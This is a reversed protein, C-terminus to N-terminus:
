GPIERAPEPKAEREGTQGAPADASVRPPTTARVLIPRTAGQGRQIQRVQRFLDAIRLVHAPPPGGVADPRPGEFMRVEDYASTALAEVAGQGSIDCCYGYAIVRWRPAVRKVMSVQHFVVPHLLAAESPLVHITLPHDGWRRLLEVWWVDDFWDAVEGDPNTPEVLLESPRPANEPGPDGDGAAPFVIRHSLAPRKRTVAVADRQQNRMWADM